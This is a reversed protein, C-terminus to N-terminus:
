FQSVSPKLLVDPDTAIQSQTVFLSYILDADHFCHEKYGLIVSKVDTVTLGIHVVTVMYCVKLEEMQEQWLKLSWTEAGHSPTLLFTM